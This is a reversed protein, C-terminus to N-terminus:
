RLYDMVQVRYACRLTRGRIPDTLEAQFFPAPRFTGGIAPLTGSFVVAAAIPQTSNAETTALIADPPLLRALPGEQYLTEAGDEGVWSRLQLADWHDVIDTLRWAQRSVVKACLQKARPIDTAELARDTHDSGVAVLLEGGSPLLVFEAEGSTDNGLVFMEDATTLLMPACAYFTPIREPAPIGHAKLEDIHAQAEAQNRGTYGAMILKSFAIERPEADLMVSIRTM